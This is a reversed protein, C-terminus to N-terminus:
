WLPDLGFSICALLSWSEVKKREPLILESYYDNGILLEVTSVEPESPFTDALQLDKLLPEFQKSNIPARQIMGTIKPVVNAQINMTHGNKLKLGFEVVPTKFEKPKTSGFTFVTRIETNKSVLQLENVLDETIYTRQSGCDLLLRTSQKESTNLNLTDVLATQMLVQEGSVMLSSETEPAMLHDTFMALTESEENSSFRKPCLSRHHNGVKQCHFCSKSVKCDKLLHNPKMCIFCNGKSKAKRSEITPYTQCQNSWHDKRQCYFGGRTQSDTASEKNGSLLAGTTTAGSWKSSFSNQKQSKVATDQGKPSSIVQTQLEGVEEACIYRKLAKRISEM